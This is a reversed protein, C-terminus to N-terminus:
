PLSAAQVRGSVMSAGALVLGGAELFGRRSIKTVM